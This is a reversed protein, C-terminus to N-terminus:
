WLLEVNKLIGRIKRSHRIRPFHSSNGLIDLEKPKYIIIQKLSTLCFDWSATLRWILLKKWGLNHLPNFGKSRRCERAEAIKKGKM